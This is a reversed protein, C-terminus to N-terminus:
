LASLARVMPVLRELADRHAQLQPFATTMPRLASWVPDLRAAEDAVEGLAHFFVDGAALLDSRHPPLVRVLDDARAADGRPSVGRMIVTHVALVDQQECVKERLRQLTLRDLNRRYKVEVPLAKGTAPIVLLDSLLRLPGLDLELYRSQDLTPLVPFMQEIGSAYVGYGAQRLASAVVVEAVRGTLDRYIDM